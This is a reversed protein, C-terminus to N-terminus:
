VRFRFGSGQVRLPVEERRQVDAQLTSAERNAACIAEQGATM